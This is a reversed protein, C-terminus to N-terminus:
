RHDEEEAAPPIPTSVDAINIAFDPSGDPSVGKLTVSKLIPTIQIKWGAYQGSTIIYETVGIKHSTFPVLKVTM